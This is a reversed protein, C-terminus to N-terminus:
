LLQLDDLSSQVEEGPRVNDNQQLVPADELVQFEQEQAQRKAVASQLAIIARAHATSLWLSNSSSENGPVNCQDKLLAIFNSQINQGHQHGRALGSYELVMASSLAGHILSWTRLPLISLSQLDLFAEMAEVLAFKVRQLDDGMLKERLAHRLVPRYLNFLCRATALRCLHHEIRTQRTNCADRSRIHPACRKSICDLTKLHQRIIIM